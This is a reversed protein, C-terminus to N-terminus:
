SIICLAQFYCLLLAKNNKLTMRWIELECLVFFWLNQGSNPKEPQLELKFFHRIPKWHWGDFKLTVRSLFDGIKVWIPCKQVTVGTQISWHTRFSLCLKFYCQLPAKNNKLIMQWIELECLVFFFRQNQGSNLTEPSCNWNVSPKSIICLAQCLMSCTGYEKALDDLLNSPAVRQFILSKFGIQILNKPQNCSDFGESKGQQSNNLMIMSVLHNWPQQHIVESCLSGHFWYGLM